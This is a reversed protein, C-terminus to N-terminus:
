YMMLYRVYTNIDKGHMVIPQVSVYAFGCRVPIKTKNKDECRRIIRCYSSHFSIEYSACQQKARRARAISFLLWHRGMRGIWRNHGCNETKMTMQMGSRKSILQGLETRKAILAFLRSFFINCDVCLLIRSISRIRPIREHSIAGCCGQVQYLLTNTGQSKEALAVACILRMCLLVFASRKTDSMHLVHSLAINSCHNANMCRIHIMIKYLIYARNGQNTIRSVEYIVEYLSDKDAISMHLLFRCLQLVLHSNHRRICELSICACYISCCFGFAREVLIVYWCKCKTWLKLHPLKM